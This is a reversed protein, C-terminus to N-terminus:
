SCFARMEPTIPDAPLSFRCHYDFAARYAEPIRARAQVPLVFRGNREFHQGGYAIEAGDPFLLDIFAQGNAPVFEVALVAGGICEFRPGKKLVANETNKESARAITWHSGKETRWSETKFAGCTFTSVTQTTTQGYAPVAALGLLVGVLIRM